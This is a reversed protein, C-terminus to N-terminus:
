LKNRAGCNSHRGTEWFDYRQLSGLKINDRRIAMPERWQFPAIAVGSGSQDAAVTRDITLYGWNRSM